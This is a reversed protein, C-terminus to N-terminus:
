RQSAADPGDGNHPEAAPTPATRSAGLPVGALVAVDWAGIALALAFAVAIWVRKRLRSPGAPPAPPAAPETWGPPLRDPEAPGRDEEDPRAPLTSIAPGPPPTPLGSRVGSERRSGGHYRIASGTSASSGSSLSSGGARRALVLNLEVASAPRGGGAGPIELETPPSPTTAWPELAEMVEAPTQFRDGPKKALMRAIAESLEVPVDSRIEHVPTVIKSQHAMLKQAVKAGEFPAKGTLLFYGTAGLSYIDARGDVRSCDLAQEPALYDATGLIKVGEGRTLDETESESRVLGLDLIKVVGNRDVLLNSPKIDRHVMGRQALFGLGAAAQWLYHAARAPDLAGHRVVLEQLSIGDVFEMVLFIISGDQDVDFARVLNPHDLQGAARAERFFRERSFHNDTREPPMVKLAVRRLMGTHEALFVQGMGGLGIRDLVRYRGLFFGRYKGKLLQDTHFPTLLGNTQLREALAAPSEYPGPHTTLYADLKAPPILKSKRILETLEEVTNPAPM